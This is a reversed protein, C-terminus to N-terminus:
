QDDRMAQGAEFAGWDLSSVMEVGDIGRLEVARPASFPLDGRAEAIQRVLSSVLIEGGQALAAIRAAVVVHKGFLDGDDDVLVEGTHLGMRVLLIRDPDAAGSRALDRQIGISSLLAARASRFCMMYGDGQHKVIRGGHGEVHASVLAHHRQLVDFWARDGLAVAMKTSSEIDSFVITLTGAEHEVGLVQASVEGGVSEAVLDISTPPHDSLQSQIETYSAPRAEFDAQGIELTTNGIRVVGGAAVHTPEEVRVGDVTTGNSSDLDCVLARGDSEPQLAVHRRSVQSDAIVITEGERGFELRRDLVLTFPRRQPVRVTVLISDM